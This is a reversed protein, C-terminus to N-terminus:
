SNRIHKGDQEPMIPSCQAFFYNPVVTCQVTCVFKDIAYDPDSVFTNVKANISFFLVFTNIKPM